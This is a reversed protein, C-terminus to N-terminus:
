ENLIILAELERLFDKHLVDRIQISGHSYSIYSFPIPVAFSKMRNSNRVYRTKYEESLTECIRTKNGFVRERVFNQYLGLIGDSWLYHDNFKLSPIGM